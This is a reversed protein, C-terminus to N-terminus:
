RTPPPPPVCPLMALYISPGPACTALVMVVKPLARRLTMEGFEFPCVMTRGVGQLSPGCWGAGPQWARTLASQWLDITADCCTAVKCHRSRDADCSRVPSRKGSSPHM